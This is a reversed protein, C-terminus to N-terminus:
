EPKNPTVEAGKGDTKGEDGKKKMAELANKIVAPYPVGMLSTNELISIGENAVYYLAAATQFIAQESGMARDLLTGVLVVLMIFFKKVLGDFSAKSSVGGTASNPSKGRWAVLLGTVYDIVMFWALITLLMNWEGLLGAAAGLVAAVAKTIKEWNM